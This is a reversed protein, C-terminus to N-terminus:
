SEALRRLLDHNDRMVRKAIHMQRSVEDPFPSVSFGYPEDEIFLTTGEQIGLKEVLSAPIAVLLEGDARVVKSEVKV